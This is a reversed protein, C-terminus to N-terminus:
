ENGPHANGGATLRDVEARLTAVEQALEAIYGILAANFGSAQDAVGILPQSTARSLGSKVRSVVAGVGPKTSKVLAFDPMVDALRAVEALDDARFPEIPHAVDAAVADVSYLGAAKKEAVRRRIDDMLRAAEDSQAGTTHDDMSHGRRGQMEHTDRSANTMACIKGAEATARAPLRGTHACEDGSHGSEDATM